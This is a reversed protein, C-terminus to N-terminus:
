ENNKSTSCIEIFLPIFVVVAAGYFLLAYALLGHENEVSVGAFFLIPSIILGTIATWRSIEANFIISVRKSKGLLYIYVEHM